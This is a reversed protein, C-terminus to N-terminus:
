KKLPDSSVEINKGLLHKDFFARVGKNVELGGFGHGWPWVECIISSPRRRDAITSSGQTTIKHGTFHSISFRSNRRIGLRAEGALAHRAKNNVNLWV